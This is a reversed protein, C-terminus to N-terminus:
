RAHPAAAHGAVCSSAGVTRPCCASSPKPPRMPPPSSVTPAATSSARMAPRECATMAIVITAATDPDAKIAENQLSLAEQRATDDLRELEEAM